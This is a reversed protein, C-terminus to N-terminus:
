HAHTLERQHKVTDSVDKTQKAALDIASKQATEAHDVSQRIVHSIEEKAKSADHSYEHAAEVTTNNQAVTFDLLSKQFTVYGEFAKGAM